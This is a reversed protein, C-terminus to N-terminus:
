TKTYCELYWKDMDIPCSITKIVHKDYDDKCNDEVFRTSDKAISVFVIKKMINLDFEFSGNKDTVLYYGDMSECYKELDEDVFEPAYKEKLSDFLKKDVNKVNMKGGKLCMYSLILFKGKEEITNANKISTMADRMTELPYCICKKLQEMSQQKYMWSVLAPFGICLIPTIPLDSQLEDLRESVERSLHYKSMLYELITSIESYEREDLDVQVKFFMARFEYARNLWTYSPITIILHTNGASDLFENLTELTEKFKEYLQLEHFIDDIIYIDVKRSPGWQLQRFSSILVSDTISGDKQLSDVLSKALFTKGSGQVGTIVVMGKQILLNKAKDFLNTPRVTNPLRTATEQM